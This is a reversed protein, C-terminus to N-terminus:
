TMIARRVSRACEAAVSRDDVRTSMGAKFLCTVHM